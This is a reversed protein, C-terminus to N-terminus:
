PTLGPGFRSVFPISPILTRGIGLSTVVGSIVLRLRDGKLFPIPPGNNIPVFGVGQAYTAVALATAAVTAAATIDGAGSFTLNGTQTATAAASLTFGTATIATVTPAAVSLIVPNNTATAAASLTFGTGPTVTAITAGAPIGTGSVVQGVVLGLQTTTVTVSTNTTGASFSQAVAIGSGVVTQGVLLNATAATVVATGASTIACSVAFGAAVRQLKVPLSLANTILGGIRIRSNELLLYGDTTFPVFDATSGAIDTSELTFVDTLENIQSLMSPGSFVQNINGALAGTRAANQLSIM